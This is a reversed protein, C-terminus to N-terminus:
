GRPGTGNGIGAPLGGVTENGSQAPIVSRIGSGSGGPAGIRPAPKPTTLDPDWQPDREPTPAAPSESSLVRLRAGESACSACLVLVALSLPRLNPM